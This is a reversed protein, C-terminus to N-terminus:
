ARRLEHRKIQDYGNEDLWKRMDDTVHLLGVEILQFWENKGVQRMRSYDDQKVYVVPIFNWKRKTADWGTSKWTQSIKKPINM